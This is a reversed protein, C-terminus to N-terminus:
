REVCNLTVNLSDAQRQMRIRMQNKEDENFFPDCLEESIERGSVRYSCKLCDPDTNINFVCSSCFLIVTLIFTFLLNKM